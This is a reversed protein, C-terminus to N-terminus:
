VFFITFIKKDFGENDYVKKKASSVSQSEKIPNDESLPNHNNKISCCSGM